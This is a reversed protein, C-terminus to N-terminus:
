RSSSHAWAMSEIQRKDTVIIVKKPFWQSTSPSEADVKKVVSVKLDMRGYLAGTSDSHNADEGLFAYNKTLVNPVQVDKHASNYVVEEGAVIEVTASM